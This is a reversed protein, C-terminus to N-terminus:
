LQNEIIMLCNNQVPKYNFYIFKRLPVCLGVRQGKWALISIPHPNETVKKNYCTGAREFGGMRSFRELTKAWDLLHILAGLFTGFFKELISGLDKIM